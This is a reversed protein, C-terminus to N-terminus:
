TMRRIMKLQHTHKNVDRNLIGQDDLLDIRVRGSAHIIQNDSLIIGVHKIQGEPNSFFALDGPRADTMRPLPRGKEAQQWADRPLPIGCLKFVMQTFGSCDVGFPSRGGWLYPANLYMYANELIRRHNPATTNIVNGEFIFPVDNILFRKEGYLPLSSGIVVPCIQNKNWIALQVLDSTVFIPSAQIKDLYSRSLATLQKPDMWGEYDDYITRIKIWNDRHELVEASEGFLLQTVLESKDSPDRRVPVISLTCIGYSKGAM